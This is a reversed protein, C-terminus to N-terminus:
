PRLDSHAAWGSSFAPIKNCISGPRSTEEPSRSTVIAPQEGFIFTRTEFKHGNQGCLRTKPLLSWLNGYFRSEELM